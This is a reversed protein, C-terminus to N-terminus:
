NLGSFRRTDIAGPYPYSALFERQIQRGLEALHEEAREVQKNAAVELECLQAYSLPSYPDSYPDSEMQRVAQRLLDLDDDSPSRYSGWCRSRDTYFARTCCAPWGDSGPEEHRACEMMWTFYEDPAPGKDLANGADDTYFHRTANWSDVYLEPELRKEFVWRPVTWWVQKGERKQRRTWYRPIEEGFIYQTADQAWVLRIISQGRKNLGVIQDIRRQWGEVDLWPKLYRNWRAPTDLDPSSKTRLKM